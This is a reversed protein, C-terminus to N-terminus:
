RNKRNSCTQESKLSTVPDCAIKADKIMFQM